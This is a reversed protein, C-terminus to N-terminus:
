RASLYYYSTFVVENTENSNEIALRTTSMNVNTHSLDGFEQM